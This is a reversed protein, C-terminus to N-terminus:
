FLEYSLMFVYYFLVCRRSNTIFEKATHKEKRNVKRVNNNNSRVILMVTTSGVYFPRGPPTQKDDSM